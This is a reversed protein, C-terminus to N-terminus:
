KNTNTTQHRHTTKCQDFYLVLVSERETCCARSTFKQQNMNLTHAASVWIHACFPDIQVCFRLSPALAFTGTIVNQTSYKLCINFTCYHKEDQWLLNPSMHPSDNWQCVRNTCIFQKQRPKNEERGAVYVSHPQIYKWHPGLVTSSTVCWLNNNRSGCTELFSSLSLNLPFRDSPCFLYLICLCRYM